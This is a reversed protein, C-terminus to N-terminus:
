QFISLRKLSAGVVRSLQQLVQLKYGSTYEKKGIRRLHSPPQQSDELPIAEIRSM